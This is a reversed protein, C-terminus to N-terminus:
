SSTLKLKTHLDSRFQLESARDQMMEEEILLQNKVSGNYEKLVSCVEFLLQNLMQHLM